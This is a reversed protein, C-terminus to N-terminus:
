TAVMFKDFPLLHAYISSKTLFYLKGFTIGIGRKSLKNGGINIKDSLISKM